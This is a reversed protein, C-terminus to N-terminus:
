STLYELISEKEEETSFFIGKQLEMFYAEKAHYPLIEVIITSGDEKQEYIALRNNGHLGIFYKKVSNLPLYNDRKEEEKKIVPYLVRGDRTLYQGKNEIGEVQTYRLLYTGSIIIFVFLVFISLGRWFYVKELNQERNM